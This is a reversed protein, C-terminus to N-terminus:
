PLVSLLHPVVSCRYRPSCVGAKFQDYLKGAPPSEVTSVEFKYPVLASDAQPRRSGPKITYKWRGYRLKTSTVALVLSGENASRQTAGEMESTRTFVKLIRRGALFIHTPCHDVYIISKLLHVDVPPAYADETVEEETDTDLWEEDEVEDGVNSEAETITEDNEMDDVIEDEITGGATGCNDSNGGVRFPRPVKEYTMRAPNCIRAKQIGSVTEVIRASPVDWIYVKEHAATLLAPYVFRYARTEEPSRLVAYPEFCGRPRFDPEHPGAYLMLARQLASESDELMFADPRASIDFESPTENCPIPDIAVLSGSGCLRWVERHGSSRDFILFGNSYELHAYMRGMSPELYWLERGTDMDRVEVLPFDMSTTSIILKRQEDVKIRHVSERLQGFSMLKAVTQSPAVGNWANRIRIRTKGTGHANPVITSVVFASDYM